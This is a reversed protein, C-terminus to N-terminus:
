WTKYISYLFTYLDSVFFACLALTLLYKHRKRTSLYYSVIIVLPFTLMHITRSFIFSSTQQGLFLLAIYFLVYSYKFLMKFPMEIFEKKYVYEKILIAFTLFYPLLDIIRRIIGNVNAVSQEKDLYSLAFETTDSSFIGMQLLENVAPMLLVRIFPFLLLSVLLTLKNIPIFSLIFLVIFVPLSQHLFTSLVIGIVGLIYSLQRPKCPNLLFSIALMFISIGLSGRTLTFQQLLILPFIFYVIRQNLKYRKYTIILLLLATGWVVFRWFYYNHPLTDILWYYFSEVHIPEHYLLIQDYIEHYHYTDAESFGLTAFILIVIVSLTHNATGGKTSYNKLILFLWLLFNILVLIGEVQYM